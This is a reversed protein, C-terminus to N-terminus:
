NRKDWATTNLIVSHDLRTHFVYNHAHLHGGQVPPSTAPFKCYYCMAPQTLKALFHDSNAQRSRKQCSQIKEVSETLCPTTHKQLIWQKYQFSLNTGGVGGLDRQWTVSIEFNKIDPRTASIVLSFFLVTQSFSFKSRESSSVLTLPPNINFM